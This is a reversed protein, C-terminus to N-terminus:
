IRGSIVEAHRRIENRLHVPYLVEVECGHSLIEQLFDYTPSLYYRFVAYDDCNEVETQSHHLPLTRFYEKQTGYVKLDITEPPCNDERIIGFCNYFYDEPSFDKPVAYANGTQMLSQIRDLAYIRIVDKMKNRAILYWRQKFVKVFYPEVEATYEDQRWFSKYKIEVSLSDRM